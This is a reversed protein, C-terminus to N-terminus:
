LTSTDKDFGQRLRKLDTESASTGTGLWIQEITPLHPLGDTSQINTWVATLDKLHPFSPLHAFSSLNRCGTVNLIQLKPFKLMGNSDVLGEFSQLEGSICRLEELHEIPPLSDFSTIHPNQLVLTKLNSFRKLLDHPIKTISTCNISLETKGDLWLQDEPRLHQIFRELFDDDLFYTKEDNVFQWQWSLGFYTSRPYKPTRCEQLLDQIQADTPAPKHKCCDGVLGATWLGLIMSAFLLKKM